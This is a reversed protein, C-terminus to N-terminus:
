AITSASFASSAQTENNNVSTDRAKVTYSASTGAALGTVNYM